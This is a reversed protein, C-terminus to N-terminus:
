QTFELFYHFFFIFIRGLGYFLFQENILSFCTFSGLTSWLFMVIIQSPFVCNFLFIIVAMLLLDTPGEPIGRIDIFLCYFFDELLLLEHLYLLTENFM